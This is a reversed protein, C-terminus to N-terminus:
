HKSELVDVRKELENVAALGSELRENTQDLRENTQELKENTQDLRSNTDNVRGNLTKMEAWIGRLAELHEDGM